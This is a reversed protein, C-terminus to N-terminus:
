RLQDLAELARRAEDIGGLSDVLKKAELLDDATLHSARTTRRAAVATTMRRRRVKRKKTAKRKPRSKYKVVSALSRSVKIGKAALDEVVQKPGADPNKALYDRVAQSKSSERAARKKAM